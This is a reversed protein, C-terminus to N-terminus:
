TKKEQLEVKVFRRKVRVYRVQMHKRSCFQVGLQYTNRLKSCDVLSFGKKVMFDEVILTRITENKTVRAKTTNFRWSKKANMHVRNKHKDDRGVRVKPIHTHWFM